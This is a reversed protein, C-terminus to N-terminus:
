GRALLAFGGFLTLQFRRDAVSARLQERSTGAGSIATAPDVARGRLL